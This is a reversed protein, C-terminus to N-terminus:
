SQQTFGPAGSIRGSQRVGDIYFSLFDYNPESSVSWYFSLTGPGSVTTQISSTKNDGIVASRASGTTDGSRMVTTQGFWNGIDGSTPTTSWTLTDDLATNLSVTANSFLATVNTSPASALPLTVTCTPDTGSCAGSWGAFRSKEDASASLTVTSGAAFLSTCSPGCSIGGPSSAVTGGATGGGSVGKSVAISNLVQNQLNAIATDVRLFPKSVTGGSRTDTVTPMNSATLAALIEATTADPKAQRLVAIAGAVHPAAMSTGCMETYSNQPVSSTICGQPDFDGGPAAITTNANINTYSAIGGQKNTAAVSVVSSICAPASMQNTSNNNGAAVVTFVGESLLLDIIPKEPDSDCSSSFRSSGLSMNIADIHYPNGNTSVLSEIYELGHIIDSTYAGNQSGFVNVMVLRAQNAVGRYVPSGAGYSGMAIGAVHTGHDQGSAPAAAGPGTQSYAGNPCRATSLFCAEAVVRPNIFPHSSQVGTDIVAVTRGYGSPETSPSNAGGPLGILPITANLSPQKIDDPEVKIVNPDAKLRALDSQSVEAAFAPILSFRKIVSGTATRGAPFNRSIAVDVLSRIQSLAASRDSRQKLMRGFVGLTRENALHVIVRSKGASAIQGEILDPNVLKSPTTQAMSYSPMGFAMIGAALLAFAQAFSGSKRRIITM